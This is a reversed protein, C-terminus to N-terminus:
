QGAEAAAAAAPPTACLPHSVRGGRLLLISNSEELAPVTLILCGGRERAGAAPALLKFPGSLEVLHGHLAFSAAAAAAAAAATPAPTEPGASAAPRAPASGAAAAAAAAAPVVTQLSAGLAVAGGARLFVHLAGGIPRLVAPGTVQWNGHLPRPAAGFHPPLAVHSEAHPPPPPRPAASHHPRPDEAPPATRVPAAPAAAAAPPPARV